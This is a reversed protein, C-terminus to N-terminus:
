PQYFLEDPLINENALGAQTLGINGNHHSVCIHGGCSICSTIKIRGQVNEQHSQMGHSVTYSQAGSRENHLWQHLEHTGRQTKLKICAIGQKILCLLLFM